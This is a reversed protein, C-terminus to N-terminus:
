IDANWLEKALKKDFEHQHKRGRSYGDGFGQTFKDQSLDSIDSPFLRYFFFLRIRDWPSDQVPQKRCQICKM